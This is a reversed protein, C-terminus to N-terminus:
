PPPADGTQELQVQRVSVSWGLRYLRDYSNPIKWLFCAMIEGLKPRSNKYSKQPLIQMDIQQGRRYRMITTIETLNCGM